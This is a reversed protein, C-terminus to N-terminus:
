LSCTCQQMKFTIQNVQDASVDFLTHQSPVSVAARPLGLVDKRSVHSLLLRGYLVVAEPPIHALMQEFRTWVLSSRNDERQDIGWRM